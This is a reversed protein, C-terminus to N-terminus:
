KDEEEDEEFFEGSYDELDEEFDGGMITNFFNVYALFKVDSSLGAKAGKSQRKTIEEQIVDIVEVIIADDGELNKPDSNSMIENKLEAIATSFQKTVFQM